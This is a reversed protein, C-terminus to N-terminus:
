FNGVKLFSFDVSDNSLM